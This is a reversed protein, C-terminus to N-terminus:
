LVALVGNSPEGDGAKNVAVVRFELRVGGPQDSLTATTEVALGVDVWKGSDEARRQLKYVAVKGGSDPEKWDLRIWGEGQRPAELSRTQGPLALPTGQRRGGWGLYELSADDYHTTNEAYRLVMKMEDVLAELAEDKADVAQKAAAQQAKAADAAEVYARLAKDLEDPGVPPSPFLDERARLGAVIEHALAQVKSEAKPFRM